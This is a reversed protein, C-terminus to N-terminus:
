LRERRTDKEGEDGKNREDEQKAPIVEEAEAEGEQVTQKEADAQMGKGDYTNKVKALVKNFLREDVKKLTQCFADDKLVGQCKEVLIESLDVDADLYDKLEEIEGKIDLWELIARAISEFM